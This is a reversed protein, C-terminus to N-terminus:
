DALEADPIERYLRQRDRLEDVHSGDITVQDGANIVIAPGDKPATWGAKRELTFRVAQIDGAERAAQLVSTTRDISEAMGLDYTERLQPFRAMCDRFLPIPLGLRAAIQPLTMFQGAMRKIEGLDIGYPLAETTPMQAIEKAAARASTLSREAAEIREPTASDIIPGNPRGRRRVKTVTEVTNAPMNEDM